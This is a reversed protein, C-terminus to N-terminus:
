LVHGLLYWLILLAILLPIYASLAVAAISISTLGFYELLLVVGSLLMTTFVAKTIQKGIMNSFFFAYLAGIVPNVATLVVGLVIKAVGLLLMFVLIGLLIMPAYAALTGPLFADFLWTVIFHLAMALIVTLFRYLYWGIIKRGKPILSDLLNVLFALIVMSLLQSCIRPFEAGGFTFVTLTDGSFSVFPLPSLFRSMDAPDFTYVVVTLAYIFLIGMASSVAHNLSSRKGLTARGIFGLILSVVAFIGFLKAAEIWDVNDPIFATIESLVSNM